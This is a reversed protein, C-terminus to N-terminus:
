HQQNEGIEEKVIKNILGRIYTKKKRERLIEPSIKLEKELKKNSM